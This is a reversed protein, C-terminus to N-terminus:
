WPIFLKAFTASLCDLGQRGMVCVDGKGEKVGMQPKIEFSLTHIRVNGTGDGAVDLRVGAAESSHRVDLIGNREDRDCVVKM